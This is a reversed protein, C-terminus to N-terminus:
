ALKRRLRRITKEIAGDPDTMKSVAETQEELSLETVVYPLVVGHLLADHVRSEDEYLRTLASGFRFMTPRIDRCDPWTDLLSDIVGAPEDGPVLLDSSLAVDGLESNTEIPMRTDPYVAAAYSWIQSSVPVTTAGAVLTSAIRLGASSTFPSMGMEVVQMLSVIAGELPARNAGELIVLSIGDVDRAASAAALLGGGPVDDLDRPQIAGPSVHVVLMRGACAAQAYATLAALAGPGLTIPMLRGVIAAHVQLMQAPDVGRNRAANTLVRRLAAKDKVEDARKSSWEIKTRQPEQVGSAVNSTRSEFFPRLISVQALLDLPRDLAARVRVEMAADAEKVVETLKQQVDEIQESLKKIQQAKEEVELHAKARTDTVEALAAREGV